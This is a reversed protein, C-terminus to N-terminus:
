GGGKERRGVERKWAEWFRIAEAIEEETYGQMALLMQAGVYAPGRGAVEIVTNIAAQIRDTPKQQPPPDNLIM